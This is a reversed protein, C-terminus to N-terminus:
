RQQISLVKRFWSGGGELRFPFFTFTTAKCWVVFFWNLEGAKFGYTDVAFKGGWEHDSVQQQHRSHYFFFQNILYTRKGVTM